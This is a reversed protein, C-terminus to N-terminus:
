KNYPNKIKVVLELLVSQGALWENYPPYDHEPLIASGVLMGELNKADIFGESAFGEIEIADTTFTLDSLIIDVLPKVESNARPAHEAKSNFARVRLDLSSLVVTPFKEWSLYAQTGPIGEVIVTLDSLDAPPDIAVYKLKPILEGKIIASKNEVEYCIEGYGEATFPPLDPLTVFRANLKTFAEISHKCEPKEYARAFPCILLLAAAVILSFAIYAKRHKM